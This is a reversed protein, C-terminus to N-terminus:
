VWKVSRLALPSFWFRRWGPQDDLVPRARHHSKDFSHVLAVAALKGNGVLFREQLPAESDMRDVTQEPVYVQKLYCRPCVDFSHGASVTFHIDNLVGLGIVRQLQVTNWIVRKVGVLPTEIIGTLLVIMDDADTSVAVVRECGDGTSGVAIDVGMLYKLARRVVGPSHDYSNHVGTNIRVMRIQAAGEPCIGVLYRAVADIVVMVSDYIIGDSTVDDAAGVIRGVLVTM